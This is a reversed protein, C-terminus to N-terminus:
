ANKSKLLRLRALHIENIETVLKSYTDLDTDVNELFPLLERLPKQSFFDNINKDKKWKVIKKEAQQSEYRAPNETKDFFVVSALKYMLETDAVMELRQKLQENLENLKFININQSQLIESIAETHQKLYDRTCRMDLEHYVSVAMLGREYPLSFYDAFQYYDVGGSTFAYEIINESNPFLSKVRGNKFKEIKRKIWSM